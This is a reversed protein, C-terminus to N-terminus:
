AAAHIHNTGSLITDFTELNLGASLEFRTKASKFRSEIEKLNWRQNITKNYNQPLEKENSGVNQKLPRFTVLNPDSVPDVFM